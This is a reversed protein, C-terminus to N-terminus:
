RSILDDAMCKENHRQLAYFHLYFLLSLSFKRHQNLLTRIGIRSVYFRDLFYQLQLEQDECWSRSNQIEKVGVALIEVIRSHKQLINDVDDTFESVVSPARPSCEEYKMLTDFTEEYLSCIQQVARSERLVSPLLRFEQMINAFRVPLEYKLFEFSKSAPATEGFVILNKLSLAVPIFKSYHEIKRGSKGIFECFREIGM